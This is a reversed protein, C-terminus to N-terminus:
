CGRVVRYSCVLYNEVTSHLHMSVLLQLRGATHLVSSKYNLPCGEAIGSLGGDLLNVCRDAALTHLLPLKALASIGDNSLNAHGTVYVTNVKRCHQVLACLVNDEMRLFRQNRNRMTPVKVDFKELNHWYSLAECLANSSLVNSEESYAASIRLTQLRPNAQALGVLQADNLTTCHIVLTKIKSLHLYRDDAVSNHTLSFGQFYVELTKLKSCKTSIASLATISGQCNYLTFTRLDSLSQAIALLCTDRLRQFSVLELSTINSNNQVLSTLATDVFAENTDQGVSVYPGALLVSTLDRCHEALTQINTITLYGTCEVTQLLTCSRFLECYGTHWVEAHQFDVRRGTTTLYL